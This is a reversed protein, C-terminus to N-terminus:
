GEETRFHPVKLAVQRDLQTDHALYVTGMAGQGLAQPDPVSRIAPAADPVKADRALSLPTPQPRAAMERATGAHLRDGVGPDASRDVTAAGRGPPPVAARVPGVGRIRRISMAGRVRGPDARPLGDGCDGAGPLIRPVIGPQGAPGRAMRSESRAQGDRGLRALPRYKCPLPYSWAPPSGTLGHRPAPVQPRSERDRPGADPHKMSGPQDAAM